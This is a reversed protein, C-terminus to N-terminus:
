GLTRRSQRLCIGPHLNGGPYKAKDRRNRSVACLLVGPHIEMRANQKPAVIAAISRGYEETM